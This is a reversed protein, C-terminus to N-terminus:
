MRHNRCDEEFVVSEQLWKHIKKIMGNKMNIINGSAISVFLMLCLWKVTLTALIETEVGCVLGDKM